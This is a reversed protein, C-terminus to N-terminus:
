QSARLADLESRSIYRRFAETFDSEFYGKALAGDLRLNRPSIGFLKAIQEPTMGIGADSVRFLVSSLPRLDSTPLAIGPDSTRVEPKQTRVELKITGKETFKSANSVLNFLIQRVKTLDARMSGLDEPCKIELRNGKRTVLPQATAAVENVLKAVNFDELFLSMKGAEIKSLDLIDNILGLQHKAAAHIKQLDPIYGKDDMDEAEEQLMESYGIIANLPTRLEHSMSALFQSKAQNASDAADRADKLREAALKEDTVDWIITQVGVVRGGADRIPTQIDHLWVMEGNPLEHKLDRTHNRGTLIVEEHSRRITAALEPPFWEPLDGWPEDKEIDM